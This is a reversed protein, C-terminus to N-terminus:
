MGPSDRLTYTRMMNIFAFRLGPEWVNQLVLWSVYVLIFTKFDM